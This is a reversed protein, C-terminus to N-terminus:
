ARSLPSPRNGSARRGRAMPSRSRWGCPTSGRASAMRCALTRDQAAGLAHLTASVEAFEKEWAPEGLLGAIRGAIAHIDGSAARAPELGRITGAMEALLSAVAPDEFQREGLIAVVRQQFAAYRAIRAETENVHEAMASLRELIRDAEREARGRALREVWACVLTTPQNRCGPRGSRSRVPLAGHGPHKEHRRGPSLPEAAHRAHAGFSVRSDIHPPRTRHFASWPAAVKWGAPLAARPSAQIPLRTRPHECYGPLPRTGTGSVNARWTADFPPTWDLAVDERRARDPLEEHFWAGAHEFLALWVPKGAACDIESGVISQKGGREEFLARANRGAGEWVCTLIAAGEGALHLYFNEAPLGIWADEPAPGQAKGSYVLDDAFVDPVVLHETDAAVRIADVGAGPRM